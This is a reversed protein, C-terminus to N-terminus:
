SGGWGSRARGAAMISMGIPMIMGGGAGQLVRFAILSQVSWAAGCLASGALFLSLSMIWMRKAGFREMAWGTLPIVLSLALLYGTTVWAITSLSTTFDRSLTDTAVIVITTDLISMIVGLVVVVALRKLHADLEAPSAGSAGIAAPSQPGTM